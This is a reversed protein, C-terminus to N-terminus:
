KPNQRDNQMENFAEIYNIFMTCKELSRKVGRVYVRIDGVTPKDTRSNKVVKELYELEVELRKRCSEIGKTFEEQDAM